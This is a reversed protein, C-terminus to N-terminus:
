NLILSYYFFLFHLRLCRLGKFLVLMNYGHRHRCVKLVGVVMVHIYLAFWILIQVDLRVRSNWPPFVRLSTSLSKLHTPLRCMQFRKSRLAKAVKRFVITLQFDLYPNSSVSDIIKLLSNSNLIKFCIVRINSGLWGLRNIILFCTQTWVRSFLSM